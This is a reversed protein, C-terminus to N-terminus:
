VTGHLVEERVITSAAFSNLKRRYIASHLVGEYEYTRRYDDVLMDVHDNLNSDDSLHFTTESICGTPQHLALTFLSM